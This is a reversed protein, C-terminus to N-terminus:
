LGRSKLYATMFALYKEDDLSEWTGPEYGAQQFQAAAESKITEYNNIKQSMSNDFDDRKTDFRFVNGNLMYFPQRGDSFQALNGYTSYLNAVEATIKAPDAYKMVLDDKFKDLSEGERLNYVFDGTGDDIKEIYKKALDTEKLYLHRYFANDPDLLDSERASEAGSFVNGIYTEGEKKMKRHQEVQANILSQDGKYNVMGKAAEKFVRYVGPNNVAYMAFDKEAAVRDVVDAVSVAKADDGEMDQRIEKSARANDPLYSMEEVLDDQGEYKVMFKGGVLLNTTGKIADFDGSFSVSEITGKKGDKSVFDKGQFLNLREKFITSLVDSDQEVISTFDGAEIKPAIREWGNMYKDDVFKTFDLNDRLFYLPEELMSAAVTENIQGESLLRYINILQTVSKQDDADQIQSMTQDYVLRETDNKTEATSLKLADVKSNNILQLETFTLNEQPRDKLEGPTLKSMREQDKRQEISLKYDEQRLSETAIRSETLRGMREGEEKKRENDALMMYYSFGDKFGSSFSM